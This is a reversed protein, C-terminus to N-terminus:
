LTAVELQKVETGSQSRYIKWCTNQTKEGTSSIVNVEELTTCIQALSRIREIGNGVAARPHLPTFNSPQSDRALVIVRLRPFRTLLGEAWSGAYPLLARWEELTPGCLDAIRNIVTDLDVDLDIWQFLDFDLARLSGLRGFAQVSDLVRNVNQDRPLGFGLSLEQLTTLCRMSAGTMLTLNWSHGRFVRLNPLFEPHLISANFLILAHGHGVRRSMQDTCSLYLEELMEHHSSLFADFQSSSISDDWLDVLELSVLHPFHLDFLVNLHSVRGTLSLSTLSSTAAVLLPQLRHRLQDNHDFAGSGFIIRKANGLQALQAPVLPIVFERLGREPFRLEDLQLNHLIQIFEATTSRPSHRTINGFLILRKLRVMNRLSSINVLDANQSSAPEVRSRADLTLERVHTALDADRALLEFTAKVAGNPLSNPKEATLTLSRYLMPRVIALVHYCTLCFNALDALPIKLNLIQLWIEIPLNLWQANPAM